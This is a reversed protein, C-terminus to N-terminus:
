NIYKWICDNILVKKVQGILSTSIITTNIQGTSFKAYPNFIKFGVKKHIKIKKKDRFGKIIANSCKKIISMLLDDFKDM